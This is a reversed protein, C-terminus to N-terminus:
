VVAVVIAIICGFTAVISLVAAPAVFVSSACVGATPASPRVMVPICSRPRLKPERTCAVSASPLGACIVTPSVVVVNLVNWNEESGSKRCPSFDATDAATVPTRSM